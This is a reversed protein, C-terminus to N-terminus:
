PNKPSDPVLNLRAAHDLVLRAGQSASGCGIRELYARTAPAVTANVSKRREHEPIAPRGPKPKSKRNKAPM